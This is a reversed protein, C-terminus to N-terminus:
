QVRVDVCVLRGQSSRVYIYGGSLVPPAWCRASLIDAGSLEKFGAPTAEAILLYGRESVAILKNGAATVAGNGVKRESWVQRGTKWEVCVLQNQDIGYLYDGIRVPPSMQSRINKNEWVAAPPSSSLKLLTAGRNYGSTIFMEDGWIIPDAANVDHQTKWPYSWKQSGDAPDVALLKDKGFIALLTEGDPAKFPVPTAYGSESQASEWIVRGDDKNLAVGAAGVNFIVKDEVILGSSSFGWTTEKHPLNRNWILKGTEADVCHVKGSKSLTYVKGAYVTPTSSVGGEYYKPNLPEAYEFRWFEKGGVADFCFLTDTNKNVNGMAYAKGDAVSVSSFGIGIDAEWVIKATQLAEPNWDTESSIGNLNPGRWNPWDKAPAGAAFLAFVVSIILAKYIKM